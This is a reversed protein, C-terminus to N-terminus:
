GVPEIQLHSTLLSILRQQFKQKEEPVLKSSVDAIAEIVTKRVLKSANCLLITSATCSLLPLPTSLFPFAFSPPFLVCFLLVVACSEENDVGQLSGM